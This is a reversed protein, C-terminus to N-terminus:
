RIKMIKYTSSNSGSQIKCTYLGKALQNGSQDNGNWSITQIGAPLNGEFLNNVQKGMMDYVVVKVHSDAPQTFKIETNTSFPNPYISASIDKDVKNNGVTGFSFKTTNMIEKTDNDQVWAIFELQSSVWTQDLTLNQISTVSANNVLDISAGNADPLM